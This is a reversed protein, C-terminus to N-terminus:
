SRSIIKLRAESEAELRGCMIDCLVFVDKNALSYYVYAGDKRREVFGSNYLLGLHKSLNAQGLETKEILESVSLEEATRLANLIRLRTPEGLVKFREAIIELLEPTLAQESM